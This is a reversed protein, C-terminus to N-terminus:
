RLFHKLSVLLIVVLGMAGLMPIYRERVMQSKSKLLPTHRMITLLLFYFLAYVTVVVLVWLMLLLAGAIGYLFTRGWVYVFLMFTFFLVTNFLYVVGSDPYSASNKVVELYAMIALLCLFGSLMRVGM